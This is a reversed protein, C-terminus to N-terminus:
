QNIIVEINSPVDRWHWKNKVVGKQLMIVGPNARVITKLTTQDVSFYPYNFENKSLKKKIESESSSSLGYLPISQSDLNNVLEDDLKVHGALNTKQIDYSILLFVVDMNLISDTINMGTLPDIIDFDHIPPEDGKSILKTVRDKFVAGEISWPSEDTSFEQIQGAIEYYWVDEYVDQKAGPPLQRDDIINTGVKYARFDVVPLHSLTYVGFALPILVAIVCIHLENKTFPKIYRQFMFLVVSIFVLHVDKLFSNWPDLKMFDGFCGCDTVKNFYASFFTLFTFFIMLLLNGWMVKKIQFGFILCVGLLIEFLIIFVSLLLSAPVLWEMSFVEFYEQLKYSFGLPDILKVAGSFLLFGAYSFRLVHVMNQTSIVKLLSLLTSLTQISFFIILFTM